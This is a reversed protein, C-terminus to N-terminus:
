YIIKGCNECVIYGDTKIKHVLLTPMEHHCGGCRNGSTAVVIDVYKGSKESSRRKKYRELLEKNIASEMKKLDAEIINVKPQIEKLQAQHQPTLGAINKQARIVATKADEFAATKAAIRRSIDELQSEYGTIKQLLASVYSAASGIEDETKNQSATKNYQEVRDFLEKLNKGVSEFAATLARADNELSLLNQKAVDIAHNAIDIERKVRGAEVALVLALREKDKEQYALLEKIM